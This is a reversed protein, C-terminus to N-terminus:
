LGKRLEGAHAELAAAEPGRGTARLVTALTRAVAPYILDRGGTEKELLALAPRLLAEAARENGRWHEVEALCLMPAAQDPHEPPLLKRRIEMARRCHPEAEAQRELSILTLGLNSETLAVRPHEPGLVKTWIVLARQYMPLAKAPQDTNGYLAGIAALNAALDPHDPPLVKERIELGRRFLPESEEPHGLSARVIALNNLSAAVEPAFPGLSKERVELARRFLPEAEALEGQMGHLVALSNLVEAIEPALAGLKRERIALAEELLGRAEERHQETYLQGLHFLSTALDLHDRGLERRRIEVSKELLPGARDYSGLQRYLDGIVDFLRAQVWPQNALEGELRTAGQDLLERATLQRGLASGPASGKFLDVLFAVVAEGQKRALESAARAEYAANRERRLDFTYKLGGLALVLLVLLAAIRRARARPAARIVRLRALAEAASPRAAPEPAKLREVLNSLDTNLGEAALTEGAGVKLLLAPLSLDPPYAPRGTLLEQLLLGFTYLDSAATAPESRAQEPSMWNLTGLINGARTQFRDSGSGSSSPWSATSTTAARGLDLPTLKQTQPQQPPEDSPATGEEAWRALGFDLVKVGGGPTIMVNAPKLDRHVIGKAHAVELAEAIQEAIALGDLKADRRLMHAALTEGQIRELVLYDQLDGELYEYLRCIRPHDLQSLARAERLIRAKTTPDTHDTPLVKVAVERGLREDYGAYVAGMGGSGLRELIRISGIRDIVPEM